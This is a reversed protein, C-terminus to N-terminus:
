EMSITHLIENLSNVRYKEKIANYYDRNMHVGADRIIRITEIPYYNSIYFDKSPNDGVYIMQDYEVNLKRAILEFSIPHPKWYQRGIEDTVVIEDFYEYANLVKLKQRQSIKYGDTIIGTKIENIKLNSILPLVDNFFEIEPIHERYLEVLKRIDKEGHSLGYKKYFRNFVYSSSEEFLDILTVFIEQSTMKLQNSLYRSIYRYGSEIYQRELILTDDLDFIVAKVM